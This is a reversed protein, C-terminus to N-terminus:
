STGPACSLSLAAPSCPQDKAKLVTSIGQVEEPRIYRVPIGCKKAEEIERSVGRSVDAADNPYVWLDNCIRLLPLDQGMWFDFDLLLKESLNKAIPHSHSIPCFVTHGQAMAWAAVYNAIEFRNERVEASTHSYPCALYVIM